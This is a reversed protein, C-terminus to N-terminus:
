PACANTNTAFDCRGAICSRGQNCEPTSTCTQKCVGDKVTTAPNGGECAGIAGCESNVDCTYVRGNCLTENFDTCVPAIGLTVFGAVTAAADATAQNSFCTSLANEQANTVNEFGKLSAFFLGRALPYVDAPIPSVLLKRVNADTPLIGKVALAKADPLGTAEKGAFGVTCDYEGALCGIALTSSTEDCAATRVKYWSNIEPRNAADFGLAGNAARVWRNFLRADDSLSAFFVNPNNKASNCNFSGSASQPALCLGAVSFNAKEPCDFRVGGGALNTSQAQALAFKGIQCALTAYATAESTPALEPVFVPLVLGSTGNAQCVNDGAACPRRIPDNEETGSGNCFPKASISPLGLLTLFTDTTGSLDDRRWAHAVQSCEGSSCAGEFLADWSNALSHRVDSNCQQNAIASGGNKHMGTFLVRLADFESSFCYQANGADCGPCQSGAVGNQETVAICGTFAVGGSACQANSEEGVIALGDLAVMLGEAEKPDDSRCVRGADLFRSMPSVEQGKDLMAQEGNSSGGGIYVLPSTNACVALVSETLTELTDSGRLQNNTAAYTGVAVGTVALAIAVSLSKKM